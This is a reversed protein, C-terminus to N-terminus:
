REKALYFTRGTVKALKSAQRFVDTEFWKMGQEMDEVLIHFLAANPNDLDRYVEGDTIGFGRREQVHADHQVKWADFDETEIRILIDQM